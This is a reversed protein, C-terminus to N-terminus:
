ASPDNRRRFSAALYVGVLTLALGYWTLVYSLHDNKVKLITRGGIPYGGPNATADAQLVMSALADVGAFHALAPLDFWYWENRVPDNDPQMWGRGGPDRLIGTITVEGAVQGEARSAPDRKDLPIWGRDVLVVGGGDARVLPTLVHLGPQMRGDPGPYLRPGILAEKDHLFHGTVYARRYDWRAPDDVVAPLPLPDAKMGAEIRALLDTKWHLRQVQWTGLGLLIVLAVLTAFTPILRPRFQRPM